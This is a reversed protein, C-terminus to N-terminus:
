KSERSNDSLAKEIAFIMKTKLLPKRILADAGAAIAQEPKISRGLEAILIVPVQRRTAKASILFELGPMGPLTMDSVVVDVKESGLINLAAKASGAILVRFGEFELTEVASDVIAPESAVLLITRKSSAIVRNVTGLFAEDSVPLPVVERAGLVLCVQVTEKQPAISAIIVPLKELRPRSKLYNLLYLGGQEPVDLDSVVLDIGPNSLITAISRDVSNEILVEYKNQRLVRNLSEYYDVRNHVLIIKM